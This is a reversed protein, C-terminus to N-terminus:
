SSRWKEGGPEAVAVVIKESDVDWGMHRIDKM